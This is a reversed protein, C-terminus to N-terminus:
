ERSMRACICVGFEHGAYAPCGIYHTDQQPHNMLGRTSHREIWPWNGYKLGDALALVYDKITANNKRMNLVVTVNDTTDAYRILLGELDNISNEIQPKTLETM